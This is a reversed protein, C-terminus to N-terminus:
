GAAVAALADGTLRYYVKETVRRAGLEDYWAMAAPNATETTWDFRECGCDIAQQALFAMLARGVGKGRAADVVFLDKMFLQGALRPAPYLVSWTAIGVPAGGDRAIAVQVGWHGANLNTRVYAETRERSAADERYYHQDIRHFLAVIDEVDGASAVEITVM